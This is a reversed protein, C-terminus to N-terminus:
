VLSAVRQWISVVENSARITGRWDEEDCDDNGDNTQEREEDKPMYYKVPTLTSKRDRKWRNLWKGVDAFM